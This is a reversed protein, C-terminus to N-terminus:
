RCGSDGCELKFEKAPNTITIVADQCGNDGKCAMEEINDAYIIAGQCSQDGVCEFKCPDTCTVEDWRTEFCSRDGSCKIEKMDTAAIFTSKECSSDGNCDIVAPDESTGRVEIPNVFFAGFDGNVNLEECNICTIFECLCCDYNTECEVKEGM